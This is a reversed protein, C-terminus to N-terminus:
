SDGYKKEFYIKNSDKKMINWGGGILSKIALLNSSLTWAWIKDIKKEKAIDDAIGLLIKGIGKGTHEAFFTLEYNKDIYIIIVGYLKNEKILGKAYVNENSLWKFTQEMTVTSTNLYSKKRNRLRVYQEIIESPVNNSNLDLIEFEDLLYEYAFSEKFIYLTFEFLNYDRRLVFSRSLKKTIFPIIDDLRCYYLGEEKWDVYETLFNISIGSKCLLWLKLLTEKIWNKHINEGNNNWKGNFVGSIIIFDFYYIYDSLDDNLIDIVKFNVNPHRIKAIEIMKESIDWGYYDCNINNQEMFDMLLANGCGFDLIRKNNLDAVETLIEFRLNVKRMNKYHVAEPSNIDYNLLHTEYERKVNQIHTNLEASNIIESLESIMEEKGLGVEMEKFNRIIESRKDKPSINNLYRNLFKIDSIDFM